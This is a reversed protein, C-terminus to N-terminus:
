NLKSKFTEIRVKMKNFFKNREKEASASILTSNKILNDLYKEAKDCFTEQHTTLLNLTNYNIYVM